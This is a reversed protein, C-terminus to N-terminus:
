QNRNDSEGSAKKELGLSGDGSDHSGWCGDILFGNNNGVSCILVDQFHFVEDVAMGYGGRQTLVGVESFGALM